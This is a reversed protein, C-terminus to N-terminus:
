GELLQHPLRVEYETLVGNTEAEENASEGGEMFEEAADDGV